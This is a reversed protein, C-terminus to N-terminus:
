TILASALQRIMDKEYIPQLWREPIAEVGYFAGALQGCTAAVTDSDDALNAACVLAQEVGYALESATISSIAIDGVSEQRFRQIVEIPKQNILDFEIVKGSM